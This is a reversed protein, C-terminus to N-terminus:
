QLVLVSPLTYLCLGVGIFIGIVGICICMLTKKGYKKAFDPITTGVVGLIVALLEFLDLFNDWVPGLLLFLIHM